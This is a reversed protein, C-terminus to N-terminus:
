RSPTSRTQSAQYSEAAKVWNRVTQEFLDLEKAATPLGVAQAYRVAQEKFEVTYEQKPIRQM